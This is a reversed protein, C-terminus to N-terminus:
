KMLESLIMMDEQEMERMVNSVIKKMLEKLLLSEIETFGSLLISNWEHSLQNIVPKIERGKPTLFIRNARGDFEDQTRYVYGGRELKDIARAITAKNFLLRKAITEQNVGDERYLAMLFPFQGYSINYPKLRQTYFASQARLLYSVLGGLRYNQMRYVKIEEFVM